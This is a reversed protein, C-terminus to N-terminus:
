RLSVTTGFRTPIEVQPYRERLERAASDWSRDPTRPLHLLVVTRARTVELLSVFREEDLAYWFPVLALDVGGAALGLEPWTKPDSNTDGVHLATTGDLAILYAVHEVPREVRAYAIRRIAVSRKPLPRLEPAYRRLAREGV